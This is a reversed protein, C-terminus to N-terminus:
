SSLPWSSSDQPFPALHSAAWAHCPMAHWPMEPSCSWLLGFCCICLCQVNGSALIKKLTLPSSDGQIWKAPSFGSLLHELFAHFSDFKAQFNLLFIFALATPPKKRVKHISFFFIVKSTWRQQSLLVKTTHASSRPAWISVTNLFLTYIVFVCEGTSTSGKRKENNFSNPAALRLATLQKSLSPLLPIRDCQHTKLGMFRDPPSTPIVDLTGRQLLM